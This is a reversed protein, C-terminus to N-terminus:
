RLNLQRLSEFLQPTKACEPQQQLWEEPIPALGDEIEPTMTQNRAAHRQFRQYLTKYQNRLQDEHRMQRFEDDRQQQQSDRLQQEEDRKDGREEQIRLRDYLNNWRDQLLLWREEEKLDKAVQVKQATSATKKLLASERVDREDKEAAASLGTKEQIRLRENLSDWRETEKMDKVLRAKADGYATKAQMAWSRDDAVTDRETKQESTKQGTEEQLRLRENLLDWRKDEKLDKVERAKLDVSALQQRAAEREEKLKSTQHGAAQQIRLRENLDEWRADDRKDKVRRENLNGTAVKELRVVELEEKQEKAQQAEQDGLALRQLRAAEVEERRRIRPARTLTIIYLAVTPVLGIVSGTILGRVVVSQIGFHVFLFNFIFPFTTSIVAIGKALFATPFFKFAITFLSHRKGAGLEPLPSEQWKLLM